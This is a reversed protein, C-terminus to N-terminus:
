AAASLGQFEREYHEYHPHERDFSSEFALNIAGFFAVSSLSTKGCKRKMINHVFRRAASALFHGRIFDQLNLSGNAIHKSTSNPLEADAALGLNELYEQVKVPCIRHSQKSEFFRDCSKGLIGIRDGECQDQLDNILLASCQQHFDELWNQCEELTVSAASIRGTTMAVKMLVKATILTNEISHGATKIILNHNPEIGVFPSFDSDMAAIADLQGSIIQDIYKQLEVKGGVQQVLVKPAEFKKLMIEWFVIDDDGEVYLLRDVRYFKPLANKADISYEPKEM